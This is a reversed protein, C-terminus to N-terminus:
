ADIPMKGDQKTCILDTGITRDQKGGKVISGAPIFVVDDSVNEVALQNVTGTEHVILKKQEMAESLTLYHRGNSRDPGSILWITLNESALPASASLKPDDSAALAVLTLVSITWLVLLRALM